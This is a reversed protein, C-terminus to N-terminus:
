YQESKNKSHRAEEGTKNKSPSSITKKIIQMTKQRFQVMQLRKLFINAVNLLEAMIPNINTPNTKSVDLFM